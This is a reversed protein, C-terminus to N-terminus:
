NNKKHKFVEKIDKDLCNAEKSNLIKAGFMFFIKEPELTMISNTKRLFDYLMDRIKMSEDYEYIQKVIDANTEHQFRLQKTPM